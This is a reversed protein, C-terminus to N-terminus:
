IFSKLAEAIIQVGKAINQEPTNSFSLRIHHNSKAHPDFTRGVVFVAGKEISKKLIETADIKEPISIWIYFGGRPEDWHIEPHVPMYKNLAQIMINKREKYIVRLSAVYDQLKGQSLFENALIQTFNPSCADMSQKCLECKEYIGPPVLMWGLRMGPGLIKSFSGTYCVTMEKPAMAKVPIMNDKDDEEFYLEGYADDEILPINRDKLLEILQKRREMSYMVGAPNHFFPTIYVFKPNITKDDLLSKLKEIIIGDKDMPVSLINAMYSKFASIAGIFAPNETIVVDNPDVFVKALINIAQLSGTTILLKNDDVPLGKKRLYLKLSELLPPYGPTPGYQFATKKIEAPLHNFIEDIEKVPFLDDNPMGGAFSIIDARTALGMLDRIESTRLSDVIHSFHYM